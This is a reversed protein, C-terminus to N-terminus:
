EYEGGQVKRMNASSGGGRCAFDGRKRAMSLNRNAARRLYCVADLVAQAFWYREETTSEPDEWDGNDLYTQIVGSAIYAQKAMTEWNKRKM